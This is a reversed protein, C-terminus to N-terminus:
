RPHRRRQRWAVVDLNRPLTWNHRMAVLRLTSALGIAVGEAVMRPLRLVVLIVVYMLASLFAPSVYLEGPVTLAPREGSLLDRLLGGGTATVVGLFVSVLLPMRETLARELGMVVWMGLLVADLYEIGRHFRGLASTFLLVLGGAGATVVLYWPTRLVAPPGHGILVDRLIGGGVGTVIALTLVGIVDADKRTGHLAGSLAGLVVAGLEIYLPLRLMEGSLMAGALAGKM